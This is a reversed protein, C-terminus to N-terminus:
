LSAIAEDDREYHWGDAFTSLRHHPGSAAPDRAEFGADGPYLMCPGKDTGCIQPRFHIVPARETATRAAAATAFAEICTVTVFTPPALNLEGRAREALAEAPRIWRHRAIESGDVRIEPDGEVDALFFWTDFRKPSIAPTIWRSFVQLSDPALSLSAEEVLERLAARRAPDIADSDQARRDGDDVKGGPFVWPGPRDLKRSTRQLLLVETGDATDRLVIVTASPLPERSM